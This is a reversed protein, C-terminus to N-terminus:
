HVHKGLQCSECQISKISSFSPVLLRLKKSNPHGLCQHALDVFISVYIILPSLRNLGASEHRTGIMRGIRRDQVLISNNVFLNSFNLTCTLKSIFILNFPCGPVFLVYHLPLNPLPHTQGIGHVKIQSGDVLTISPFSTSLSFHSLFSQNGIM